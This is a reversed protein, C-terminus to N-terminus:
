AAPRWEPWDERAVAAAAAIEAEGELEDTYGLVFLASQLEWAELTRMEPLRSFLERVLPLLKASGVSGVSGSKLDRGRTM